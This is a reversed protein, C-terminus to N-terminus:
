RQREVRGTDPDVLLVFTRGNQTVTAVYQDGQKHFDRFAGFSKDQLGAAFGQSELINLAKTTRRAEPTDGQARAATGTIATASVALIALLSVATPRNM